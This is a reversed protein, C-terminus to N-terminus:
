ADGPPPSSTRFEQDQATLALFASELSAKTNWLGHIEFGHQFAVQGVQEPTWGDVELEGNAFRVVAGLAQLAHALETSRPSRVVAASPVKSTFEDMSEDALLNGGGIVILHDVFLAMDSLVHSSVFITGGEAACGTLYQRLWHAGEPDLGNAPEDLIMVPPDGLAAAALGVRQKMGLSFTGLRQHAVSELGVMEIVDDVRQKSIGNSAALARLHTRPSRSPHVYDADLFFGVERLPRSRNRMPTGNIWAVGSDPKDLGLMIRITSSKGSGNPGLFGTVKGPVVHFTLGELVLTRGHSKTLNQVTIM